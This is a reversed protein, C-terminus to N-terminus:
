RNITACFFRRLLYFILSLALSLLLMSVIPVYIRVHESEYRVDGPLRGPWSLRGTQLLRFTLHSEDDNQSTAM